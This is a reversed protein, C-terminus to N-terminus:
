LPTPGLSQEYTLSFAPSFQQSRTKPLTTTLQENNTTLDPAQSAPRRAQPVTSTFISNATKLVSSLPGPQRRASAGGLCDQENEIASKLVQELGLNDRHFSQKSADLMQDRSVRSWNLTYGNNFALERIFERQTRGNGERFPHITNIEGLYHAGRNCITQPRCGSLHREKKLDEFTKALASVIHEKLAFLDGSKGINVKRL